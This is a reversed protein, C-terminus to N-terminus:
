GLYTSHIKSNMAMWGESPGFVTAPLSVWIALCLLAIIFLVGIAQRVFGGDGKAAAMGRSPAVTLDPSAYFDSLDM